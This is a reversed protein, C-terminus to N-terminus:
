APVAASQWITAIEATTRLDAVSLALIELASAHLEPTYAATADTAVVVPLDHQAADFATALVCCETTLGAVTVWGIGLRQLTPALDTGHFGSYHRKRVRPEDPAPDLGWWAAGPSGSVCLPDEDGDVAGTSLWASARWRSGPDVALEIWVVPISADRAAAVLVACGAVTQAVAAISTEDVGWGALVAPAAFDHQVDVVLLAGRGAAALGEARASETASM